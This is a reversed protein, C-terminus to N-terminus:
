RRAALKARVREIWSRRRAAEEAAVQAQYIVDHDADLQDLDSLYREIQGRFEQDVVAVLAAIEADSRHSSANHVAYWLAEALPDGQFDDTMVDLGGIDLGAAEEKEITVLDMFVDMRNGQPGWTVSYICGADILTRALESLAENSRERGDLAIFALFPESLEGAWADVQEAPAVCLRRGCEFGIESLM